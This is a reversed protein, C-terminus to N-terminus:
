KQTAIEINFHRLIDFISLSRHQERYESFSSSHIIMHEEHTVFLNQAKIFWEKANDITFEIQNEVCYRRENYFEEAQVLHHGVINEKNVTAEKTFLSKQKGILNTINRVFDYCAHDLWRENYEVKYINWFRMIAKLDNDYDIKWTKKKIKGM